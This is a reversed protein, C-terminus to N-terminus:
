TASLHEYGHTWPLLQGNAANILQGASPHPVIIGICNLATGPFQEAWAKEFDADQSRACFLLEYDEGDEFAHCLPPKRSEKARRFAADDVPIHDLDLAAAMQPPLLEPLDKALGDTLDMMATVEARRALWQGEQIRPEFRYHKGLISGGLTGTVYIAQGSDAGHRLLPKECSGTLTLAASFQGPALSSVDGGVLRIKYRLCTERIGKFFGELWELSTNPGCLLTLLAHEPTGGMAAIDSVNRKILKAGAQEASVSDDFHVRYSVTDTTMLWKETGPTLVACDDGMGYPASPNVPGLWEHFLKILAKEGISVVSATTETFIM